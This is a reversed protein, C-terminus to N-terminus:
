GLLKKWKDSEAFSKITDNRKILLKTMYRKLVVADVIRGIFGLPSVYDFEDIMLTGYETESFTHEHRFSKFAGKVMEDVFM